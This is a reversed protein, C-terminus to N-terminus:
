LFSYTLGLALSQMLQRRASVDRDYFFKINLNVNMYQTLKATFINDWKVDVEKIGKFNSFMELKSTLLINGIIAKTFDTVSEMGPEIKIKEVDETEPDDAYPVPFNRTITEKLAFGLRTKFGTVPEYGFGASETFYGPDLIDSIETKSDEKYDYGPTFQTEGKAAVYPNVYTGLLYTFVSEAKIEDASKRSEIGALKTMGYSIKGSNDWKHKAAINRAEGNINLQWAFSNEGGQAWNDFNTQTVGLNGVLANKWGMKPEEKPAEQAFLPLCIIAAFIIPFISRLKM